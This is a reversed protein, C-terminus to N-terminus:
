EDNCGPDKSLALLLQVIQANKTIKFVKPKDGETPAKSLDRSSEVILNKSLFDKNLLELLCATDFSRKKQRLHFAVQSIQTTVVENQM